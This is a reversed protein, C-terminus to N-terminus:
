IGEHVVRKFGLIENTKEGNTDGLAPKEESFFDDLQTELFDRDCNIVAKVFNSSFDKDTILKKTLGKTCDAYLLWYESNWGQDEIIKNSLETKLEGIVNNLRKIEDKLTGIDDTVVKFVSAKVRAPDSKKIYENIAKKPDITGDPYLTIKGAKIWASVAQKSVGCIKAFDTPRVRISQSFIENKSQIESFTSQKESEAYNKM